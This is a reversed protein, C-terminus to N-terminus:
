VFSKPSQAQPQYPSVLFLSLLPYKVDWVLTKLGFDPIKELEDSALRSVRPSPIHTCM